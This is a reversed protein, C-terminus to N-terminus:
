QKSSVILEISHVDIAQPGQIDEASLRLMGRGTELRLNGLSLPKFDKVFYHSNEVREKSKDYLPPDFVEVVKAKAVSSEHDDMALKVTVGENGAACTYYVIAEYEGARVVDVDWTISARTASGIQLSPTIRRSERKAPDATSSAM